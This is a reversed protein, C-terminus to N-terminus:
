PDRGSHNTASHGFICGRRKPPAKQPIPSRHRSPVTGRHQLGAAVMHFAQTATQGVADKASLSTLKDGAERATRGLAALLRAKLVMYTEDDGGRSAQALALNDGCLNAMMYPIWEEDEVHCQRLTVELNDLYSELDNGPSMKKIARLRKERRRQEADEGRRTYAVEAAKVKDEKAQERQEIELKLRREMEEKYARRDEEERRQRVQEAEWRREELEQARRREELRDEKEGARAAEQQELMRILLLQVSDSTPESSQGGTAM